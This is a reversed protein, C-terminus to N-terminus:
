VKLNRVIDNEFIEVFTSLQKGQKSLTDHGQSGATAFGTTYVIEKSTYSQAQGHEESPKSEAVQRVFAGVVEVSVAKFREGAAGFLSLLWHLRPVLLQAVHELPRSDSMPRRTLLLGPRHISVRPFGLRSVAYEIEGKTQPYTLSSNRDAGVSSVLSFHDVGGLRMLTAGALTANYDVARFASVSGAARM